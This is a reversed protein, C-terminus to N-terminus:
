RPPPPAAGSAAAVATRVFDAIASFYEARGVYFVDNHGGGEVPLWRARPGAAERLAEGMRFPVLEDDTGHIVLTPVRGERISELTDFRGRLRRLLVPPLFPYVARSVGELSTFASEVVLGAVPRELALRAAVAGGMSRGHVVVRGEGGVRGSVWSLAAEADRQIGEETPRGGSRGYGRYDLMFIAVGERVLGEAIPTRNAINGANGHLFLVAPADPAPSHWWGHVRVGDATDLEVDEGAVGALVPPPGPDRRSPLFLLREALWPSIMVFGGGALGALLLIRLAARRDIAAEGPTPHLRLRRM